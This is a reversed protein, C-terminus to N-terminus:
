MKKAHWFDLLTGYTSIFSFFISIILYVSCWKWFIVFFWTQFGNVCAWTFTDIQFRIDREICILLLLTGCEPYQRMKNWWIDVSFGFEVGVQLFHTLLPDNLIKLRWFCNWLLFNLLFSSFLVMITFSFMIVFLM